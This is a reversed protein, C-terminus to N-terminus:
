FVTRRRRQRSFRAHPNRVASELAVGHLPEGVKYLTETHELIAKTVKYGEETPLAPTHRWLAVM